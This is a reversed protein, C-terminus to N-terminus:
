RGWTSPKDAPNEICPSFVSLQLVTQGEADVSKAISLGFGTPSKLSQDYGGEPESERSFAALLWGESVYGDRVSDIIAIVDANEVLWLNRSNVYQSTRDNCSLRHSDEDLDTVVAEQRDIIGDPLRSQADDLM